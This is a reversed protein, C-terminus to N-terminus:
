AASRAPGMWHSLKALLESPKIPKGIHDNMGANRCAEIDAPLVSASLAVVPTRRNLETAARIASTAAMGDMGPMQLDMLIVDFVERRAAEVAAPGDAAECVSVGHPGLLAIVLERNVAIDDVMLIRGPRLALDRESAVHRSRATPQAAITFWFVSGGASPSTMGIEGGMLEVLGKCIALGLGAGGFRRANSGDVQSFRQFLRGAMDAPVGIGTDAVEVHLRAAQPDYDVSVAVGGTPTFKVANNLLNLLVQGLRGRDAIVEGSVSAALRVQLDLGKQAADDRVLGLVEEVLRSVDFAELKLEVQGAEVRSFDLIHNVIANLADGSRSIRDAYVQAKEPLGSMKALLAAFGIVATLPTRIEHSMNALFESKAAAAAEAEARRERLEDELARRVTIDRLMSVIGIPRGAADHALAPNGEVWIWGEDGRLLRFEELGFRASGDLVSAIVEERRAFDDPHRMARADRGILAAPRYGWTEISPSVYQIIGALDTQIVVDLLHEAVLRYRAESAELTAIRAAADGDGGGIQPGTGTTV